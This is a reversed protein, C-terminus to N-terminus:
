KTCHCLRNAVKVATSVDQGDNRLNSPISSIPRAIYLRHVLYLPGSVAASNSALMALMCDAAHSWSQYMVFQVLTCESRVGSKSFPDIDIQQPGFTCWLRKKSGDKMDVEIVPAEPKRTRILQLQEDTPEGAGDM